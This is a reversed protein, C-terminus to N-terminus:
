LAKKCRDILEQLEDLSNMSWGTTTRIVIFCDDPGTITAPADLEIDLEEYDDTTGNTNGEQSFKFIVSHLAPKEM